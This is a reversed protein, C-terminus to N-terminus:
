SKATDAKSEQIAALESGLMRAFIDALENDGNLSDIFAQSLVRGMKPDKANELLKSVFLQAANSLPLSQVSETSM